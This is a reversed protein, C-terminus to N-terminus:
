GLRTKTLRSFAPTVIGIPRAEVVRSGVGGMGKGMYGGERMKIRYYFVIGM